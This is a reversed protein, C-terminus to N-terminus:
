YEIRKLNLPNDNIVELAYKIKLLKKIEKISKNKDKTSVNIMDSASNYIQILSSEWMANRYFANAIYFAVVEPIVYENLFENTNDSFPILIREVEEDSIDGNNKRIM